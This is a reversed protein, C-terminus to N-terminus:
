EIIKKRKVYGSFRPLTLSVYGYRSTDILGKKNLRGRYTSFLSSSMKLETLLEKVKVENYDAIATIVQIDKASMESWIKDYVFEELYQDYEPFLKELKKSRNEWRIYGLVQYAFAYGKTAMGMEAADNESINFIKQYSRIIANINLPELIIKPARYLFTLTKENQLNFINEYLGTMILFVDHEQRMFIQFASAFVKVNKSNTVEDIAILLKKKHKKLADLMMGIASEINTLSIGNEISKGIGFFSLDPKAELFIPKLAPKSYLKSALDELLDQEPNLEVTVWADNNKFISVIETMLVTKGSGRIGTIMYVRSSPHEATYTEYIKNTTSLRSIYQHPKRGFAITFPNDM